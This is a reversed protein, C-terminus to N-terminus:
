SSNEKDKEACYLLFNQVEELELGIKKAQQMLELWELDIDTKGGM